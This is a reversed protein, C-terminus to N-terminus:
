GQSRRHRHVPRHQGPASSGSVKSGDPNLHKTMPAPGLLAANYDTSMSGHDLFEIMKPLTEAEADGFHVDRDRLNLM